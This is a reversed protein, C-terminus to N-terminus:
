PKFARESGCFKWEAFTTANVSSEANRAFMSETQYNRRYARAAPCRQSTGRPDVQILERGAEEAKYALKSLFSSWGADHIAKRLMGSALGKFNLDEVCLIGFRNVIKRAEEHLFNNRQHFIRHHVKKLLM